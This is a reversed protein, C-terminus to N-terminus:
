FRAQFLLSLSHIRARGFRIDQSTNRVDWEAEGAAFYKYVLGLSMWEKFNYRVGGYVQWAFVVDAAGGDVDTGSNLRDDDVYISSVSFGPGGGVFPEFPSRNPISLEINAMLPVQSVTMDADKVGNVLLGTELSLSVWETFRYGAQLSLRAGPQLEVDGGPPADPFEKLRPNEAVTGGVDAGAFFGVKEEAVAPMAVLAVGCVALSRWSLCAMNM